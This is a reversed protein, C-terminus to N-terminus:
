KKKRARQYVTWVTRDNRNLLTAIAHYNLNFSDKLYCVINELVSLRRNKLISVPIKYASIEDSLKGPFKKKAARYSVALAIQNRSTLDGIQRFTLLLNERMYKVIAELSSLYDNNFASIPIHVDFKEEPKIKKNILELIDNSSLGLEKLASVLEEIRKEIKEQGENPKM